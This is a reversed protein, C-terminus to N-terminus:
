RATIQLLQVASPFVIVILFAPLILLGVPLAMRTHAKEGAEILEMRRREQISRAQARLVQSVSVGQAEASALASALPEADTLRFEKAMAAIASSFPENRLRSERLYPKLAHGFENDRAALAEELASELGLGGSVALAVLDIFHAMQERLQLQLAEARAKLIADPLFLGVAAAAFWVWAPFSPLQSISGAAPFMAFGIVAAAIKEGLFLTLGGPDGTMRLRSATQSLDLGLASALSVTASGFSELAPRMGYEFVSTRFVREKVPPPSDTRDPRLNQLRTKLSPQPRGHPQALLVLLAGTGFLIAMLAPGTL